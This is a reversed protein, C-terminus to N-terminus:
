NRNKKTKPKSTDPKEVYPSSAKRMMNWSVANGYADYGSGNWVTNNIIGTLFNNKASDAKNSWRLNVTNNNISLQM